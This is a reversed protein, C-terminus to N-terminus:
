MIKLLQSVYWYSAPLYMLHNTKYPITRERVLPWPSKKQRTIKYFNHVLDTLFILNVAFTLSFLVLALIQFIGEAGYCHLHYM